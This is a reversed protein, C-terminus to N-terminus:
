HHHEEDAAGEKAKAVLVSVEVSGISEFELIMPFKDGEKLPQRLGVLM